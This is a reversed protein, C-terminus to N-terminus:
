WTANKQPAISSAAANTTDENSMLARLCSTGRSVTGAGAYGPLRSGRQHDSLRPSGLVALGLLAVAPAAGVDTATGTSLGGFGQAVVWFVASLALGAVVATRGHRAGLLPAVGVLVFLLAMAVALAVGLAPRDALWRALHLEPRALTRPSMMSGMAVQDGLAIGSSQGPQLVLSAGLLWLTAWAFVASRHSIPARDSEGAGGSPMALLSLVAYILAAGPAGTTLAAHGTFMGGAGEGVWWVSLAWLSSVACALRVWSLRRASLLALGLGLEVAVFVSNWLAPHAGILRVALRVPWSVVAPQFLAGPGIVDHPFAGTFLRPQAQLTAAILWLIGLLQRLRRRCM